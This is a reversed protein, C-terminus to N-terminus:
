RGGMGFGYSSGFAPWQIPPASQFNMLGSAAAPAGGGFMGVGLAAGGLAGAIPNRNLPQVMTSATTGPQLGAQMAQLLGLQQANQMGGVNALGQFGALGLNGAMARDAQLRAAADNFGSYRLNALTSAENQNVDNLANARLVAERSGGFAGQATAMGAAQANALARQRNFDSQVGGVVDQQYPDMYGGIGGLGTQSAFGLNGTLDSALGQYQQLAPNTGANNYATSAAARYRSLYAMTAPDLTTTQTQTQNKPGTLSGLLGLGGGIVAPLLAAGM